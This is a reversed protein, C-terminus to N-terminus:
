IVEKEDPIGNGNQRKNTWLGGSGGEVVRGEKKDKWGENKHKYEIFPIRVIKEESYMGKGEKGALWSKM